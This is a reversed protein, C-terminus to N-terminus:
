SSESGLKREPPEGAPPDPDAAPVPEPDVAPVPELTPRGEARVVVVSLNDHGGCANAAEILARCAEAPSHRALLEGLAIKGQDVYDSIGDSCVCIVDGSRPEWALSSFGELRTVPLPRDPLIRPGDTEPGAQTEYRGIWSVLDRAGEQGLSEELDCGRQLSATAQDGDVTLQDLMAGRLLYVRSDGVGGIAAADPRLWAVALTASPCTAAATLADPAAGDTAADGIAEGLRANAQEFLEALLELRPSTEGAARRAWSVVADAIADAALEGNSVTSIGDTIAAVVWEGIAEETTRFSEPAPFGDFGTRPLEAHSTSPVVLICRDQNRPYWQVKTVGIHQAAAAVFGTPRDDQGTTLRRVASAAAEATPFRMLSDKALLGKLWAGWGPVLEPLFSRLHPLPPGTLSFSEPPDRGTLAAFLAAGLAFLDWRPAAPGAGFEPCVYGLLSKLGPHESGLPLPHLPWDLRARGTQGGVWLRGVLPAGYAFGRAHMAEFAALWDRILGALADFRVADGARSQWWEAPTLRTEESDARYIKREGGSDDARLPALEGPHVGDDDGLAAVLAVLSGDGPVDLVQVERGEQVIRRRTSDEVREVVDADLAEPVEAEGALPL